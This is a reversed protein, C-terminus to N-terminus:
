VFALGFHITSKNFYNRPGLHLHKQGPRWMLLGSTLYNEYGQLYERQGFMCYIWDALGWTGLWSPAREGWVLSVIHGWGFMIQRKNNIRSFSEAKQGM